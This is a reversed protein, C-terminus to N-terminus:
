PVFQMGEWWSSECSDSAYASSTGCGGGTCRNLNLSRSAWRKQVELGLVAEWSSEVAHAKDLEHVLEHKRRQHGRSQSVYRGM